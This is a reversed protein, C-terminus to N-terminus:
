DLLVLSLNVSFYIIKLYRRKLVRQKSGFFKCSKMTAMSIYRSESVKLQHCQFTSGFKKLWLLCREVWLGSVGETMRSLGEAFWCSIASSESGITMAGSVDSWFPTECQLISFAKEILWHAFGLVVM